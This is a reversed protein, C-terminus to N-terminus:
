NIILEESLKKLIEAKENKRQEKRLTVRKEKSLIKQM